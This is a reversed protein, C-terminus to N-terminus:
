TTLPNAPPADSSALRADVRECINLFKDGFDAMKKALSGMEELPTTESEAVKVYEEYQDRCARLEDREAATCGPNQMLRSIRDVSERGGTIMLDKLGEAAARLALERKSLRRVTPLSANPQQHPLNKSLSIGTGPLGVTTRTGKPGLTVHAGKRGFSFSIGTKGLNLSIGPLIQLRRRFRFAM